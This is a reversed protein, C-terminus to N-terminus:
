GRECSGEYDAIEPVMVEAGGSLAVILGETSLVRV